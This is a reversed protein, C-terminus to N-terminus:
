APNSDRSFTVTREFLCSIFLRAALLKMGTDSVEVTVLEHGDTGGKVSARVRIEGALGFIVDSTSHIKLLGLFRLSQRFTVRDRLIWFCLLM